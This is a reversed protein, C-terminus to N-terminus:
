KAVQAQLQNLESIAASAESKTLDKMSKIDRKTVDSLWKKIGDEDDMGLNKSIAFIARIQSDTASNPPGDAKPYKQTQQRQQSQPRPRDKPATTNQSTDADKTDDICFLGNLAYKRAYSSTSGTVQSSDMGKKSESERALATAEISEGKEIDILKAVAKIYYRDGIQVLEDNLILIAKNKQLLPKVGELIDECSRYNYKGFSNYQNKPARLEAQINMLKEYINM